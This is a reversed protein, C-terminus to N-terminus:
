LIHTVFFLQTYLRDDDTSLLANQVKDSSSKIYESVYEQTLCEAHVTSRHIIHNLKWNLRQLQKRHIIIYQSPWFGNTFM